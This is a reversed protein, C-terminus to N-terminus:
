VFQYYQFEDFTLGSNGWHISLSFDKGFDQTINVLATSSSFIPNGSTSIPSTVTVQVYGGPINEIEYYGNVDTLASFSDGVGGGLSQVIGGSIDSDTPTDAGLDITSTNTVVYLSITASSIPPGDYLYTQYVYGSVNYKGDNATYGTEIRGWTTVNQKVNFINIIEKTNGSKYMFYSAPKLATSYTRIFNADGPQQPIVFTAKQNGTFSVDNLDYNIALQYYDGDDVTNFDFIPTFTDLLGKVSPAGNLVDINPKHPVEFYVFYAGNVTKGTILDNIGYTIKSNLGESIVTQFQALTSATIAAINGDGNYLIYQQQGTLATFPPVTSTPDFPTEYIFDGLSNDINRNFILKSDIFYQAKDLFLQQAFDNTPKVIQPLTYDYYGVNTIASAQLDLTVFPTNLLTDISDALSQQTSGTSNVFQYFTDYPIKYLEQRWVNTGSLSETGDLWNFRLIKENSINTSITDVTQSYYNFSAGSPNFTPIKYQFLNAGTYDPKIITNQFMYQSSSSNDGSTKNIIQDQIIM